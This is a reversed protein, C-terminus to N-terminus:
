KKGQEYAQVIQHVLPHRVIDSGQLDFHAIKRIGKLLKVAELFGSDKKQLDSQTMDGNIIMRSKRGLRTLFMKMQLSTTNQAEDLIIVADNFTNHTVIFDSTVYLDDEVSICMTEETGIDEISEILKYPKYRPSYQRRKRRLHFPNFAPLTIIVTYSPRRHVIPRGNVSGGIKGSCESKTIYAVGGLSRVIYAVDSALKESTSYFEARPKGKDKYVSGDTDMLGQLIALRQKVSGDKYLTPIFKEYSRKDLLGLAKLHKKLVSTRRGSTIRYDYRSQSIRAIRHGTALETSCREIIEEDNTSITLCPSTGVHGDGLLVGLLYPSIPLKQEKLLAPKMIPIKHNKQGSNLLINKKIEATTKISFGKKHRYESRSETLWMHDLSCTTSTGDEFRIRVIDKKGQPFVGLIKKSTGDQGIVHDGVQLTGMAVFGSPTLVQESLPQARGRMFALPAVEIKKDRVLIGLKAPGLIIQLSDWLPHLYPNVKETIDGPLFGFKEGAEVAPRCLVIKEVDGNLLKNCAWHVAM